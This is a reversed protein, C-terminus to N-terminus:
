DIPQGSPPVGPLRRPGYTGHRVAWGGNMGIGFMPVLIGFALANVQNKSLGAAGASAGALAIVIQVAFLASMMRKVPKPATAGTLLFLNAVGIEDTRSRELAAFYAWLTAAAGAAFLVMCVAGVAFQMPRRAHLPVGVAIVATFVLTGIADALVWRRGPQGATDTSASASTDSM